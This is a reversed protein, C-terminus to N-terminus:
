SIAYLEFGELHECKCCSFCTVFGLVRVSVCVYHVSPHLSFTRTIVKEEMVQKLTSLALTEAEEMTMNQLSFATLFSVAGIEICAVGVSLPPQLEMRIM